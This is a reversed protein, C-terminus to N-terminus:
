NQTKSEFTYAPTHSLPGSQRSGAYTLEATTGRQRQSTKREALINREALDMIKTHTAYFLIGERTSWGIASRVRLTRLPSEPGPCEM